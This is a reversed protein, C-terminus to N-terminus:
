VSVCEEAGSADSVFIDALAGDAVAPEHRASRNESLNWAAHLLNEEVRIVGDTGVADVSYVEVGEAQGVCDNDVVVKRKIIIATSVSGEKGRDRLILAEPTGDELLGEGLVVSVVLVDDTAVRVIGDSGEGSGGEVIDPVTFHSSILQPGKQLFVVGFIVDELSSSGARAMEICANLAEGVVM